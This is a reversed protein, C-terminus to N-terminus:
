SYVTRDGMPTTFTRSTFREAPMNLWSSIINAYYTLIFLPEVTLGSISFIASIMQFVMIGIIITIILAGSTRKMFSSFLTTFSMIMFMYLFAWLMSGWFEVPITAGYEVLTPILILAYYLFISMIAYLFRAILRGILLRGKSIKPFLLNGTQKEFDEAIISGSFGAAVILIMMDILMFFRQIYSASDTAEPMTGMEVQLASLWYSLGFMIGSLILMILCKKVNRRFEFKMTQWIQILGRKKSYGQTRALENM